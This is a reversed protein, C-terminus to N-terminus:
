ILDFQFEQAMASNVWSTIAGLDLSIRVFNTYRELLGNRVNDYILEQVRDQHEHEQITM